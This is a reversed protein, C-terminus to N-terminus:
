KENHGMIDHYELLNLVMELMNRLSPANSFRRTNVGNREAEDDDVGPVVM